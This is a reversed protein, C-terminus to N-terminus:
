QNGLILPLGDGQNGIVIIKTNPSNALEQTAEIGKWRLLKDSIGTAVIDQFDKIGQAEIRKREAEKKEKDIKFEYEASLQEQKLKSQIATEITTPLKVSRILVADLTIQKKELAIQTKEFIETQIAERKTSYLEEPNYKGIVKRTSSRIEPIVVVNAYDTGIEDHLNGIQSPQPFYRFSLDIHINLGNKALVDMEETQEQIRVDYIFLKNWPAIMHFGQDFINAPDKDIGGGFRRFIVGKHGPEITIFMSSGAALVIVLGIFAVVGLVILRQRNMTYIDPSLFLAM